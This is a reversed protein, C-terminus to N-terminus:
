AQRIGDVSHPPRQRNGPAHLVEVSWRRPHFARRPWSRRRRDPQGFRAGGPSRGMVCDLGMASRMNPQPPNALRVSSAQAASGCTPMTNPHVRYETHRGIGPGHTWQLRHSRGVRRMQHEIRRLGVQVRDVLEVVITALPICPRDLGTREVRRTAARQCMARMGPCRISWARRSEIVGFVPFKRRSTIAGKCTKVPLM